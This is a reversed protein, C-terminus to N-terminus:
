EPDRRGRLLRERGVPRDRAGVEPLTAARTGCALAARAATSEATPSEPPSAAPETATPTEGASALVLTRAAPHKGAHRPTGAPTPATSITPASASPAPATEVAVPGGPPEAAGDPSQWSEGPTLRALSRNTAAEWVEVIGEDVDVGVAKRGDFRGDVKVGFRTGVVVVRYGQARVVFPHGPQRHPVRFRVEGRDVRPAGDEIRMVSSQGLVAEVGGELTLRRAGSSAPSDTKAVTKAYGGWPLERGHPGLWLLGALALAATTAVGSVFWLGRRTRPLPIPAAVASWCQRLTMENPGRRAAEDLARRLEASVGDPGDPWRHQPTM